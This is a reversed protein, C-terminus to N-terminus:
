LTHEFFETMASYLTTLGSAQRRYAPDALNLVHLRNAVAGHKAEKMAKELAALQDARIIPNGPSAAVLLDGTTRRAHELAASDDYETKHKAPLGLYRETFYADYGSWDTIPSDAFGAKFGHPYELMAHVVTHAGYDCGWIGFREPDVYSQRKLFSLVERLDVTEQAGFRYHIYEEFLHGYGGSGRVDVAVVLYGESVMYRNWVMQWGDWSDAVVRGRPGSFTYLIVPYRKNADFDEPKFLRAPLIVNDHSKITLLETECPRQGASPPLL